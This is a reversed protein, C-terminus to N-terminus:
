HARVYVERLDILTGDLDFLVAQDGLSRTDCYTRGVSRTSM